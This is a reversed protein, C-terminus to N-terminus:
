LHLNKRIFTFTELLLAVEVRNESVKKQVQLRELLILEFYDIHWPHM